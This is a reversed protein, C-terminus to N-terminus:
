NGLKEALHNVFFRSFSRHLVKPCIYGVVICCYNQFYINLLDISIFQTGSENIILLVCPHPLEGKGRDRKSQISQRRLCSSCYQLPIGGMNHSKHDHAATPRRPLSRCFLNHLRKCHHNPILLTANTPKKM